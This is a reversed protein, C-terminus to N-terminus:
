KNNNDIKKVFYAASLGRLLKSRYQQEFRRSDFDAEDWAAILGELSKVDFLREVTDSTEVDALMKKLEDLREKYPLYWDAAQLGRTYKELVSRPLINEVCRKLLFKHVGGRLYQTEPVAFCFELLRVDAAPSRVDLGFANYAAYFCGLDTRSLGNLAMRKGDLWPRIDMDWGAKKARSKTNFVESVEPNIASYAFLSRDTGEKAEFFRWIREPM